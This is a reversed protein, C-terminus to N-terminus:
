NRDDPLPPIPMLPVGDELLARVEAGSAQGHIARHPAEGEHIRRAEQPFASGVNESTEAIKRHLNRVMERLNREDPGMMAIPQPAPQPQVQPPSAPESVPAAARGKVISPAMPAKDVKSTGCQPCALENRALLGDYAAGDRFWSEFAHGGDCRLAYKIM